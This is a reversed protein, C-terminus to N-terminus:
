FRFKIMEKTRVRSNILLLSLRISAESVIVCFLIFILVVLYNKYFNLFIIFSLLLLAVGELQIILLGIHRNVLFILSFLMISLILKRQSFIGLVLAFTVILNLKIIRKLGM